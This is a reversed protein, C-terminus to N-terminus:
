RWVRGKDKIDVIEQCPVCRIANIAARRAEPIECGCDECEDQGDGQLSARIQATREEAARLIVDTCIDVEDAM